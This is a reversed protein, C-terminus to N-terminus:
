HGQSFLPVRKPFVMKRPAAVLLFFPFISPAVSCSLPVSDLERRPALHQELVAGGLLQPCGARLCGSLHVLYVPGRSKAMAKEFDWALDTLGM